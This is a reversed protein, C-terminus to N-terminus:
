PGVSVVNICINRINIRINSPNTEEWGTSLRFYIPVKCKHQRKLTPRGEQFQDDAVGPQERDSVPAVKGADAVPAHPSRAAVKKRVHPGRGEEKSRAEGARAGGHTSEPFLIQAIKSIPSKPIFCLFRNYM